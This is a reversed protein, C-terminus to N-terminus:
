MSHADGFSLELLSADGGVNEGIVGGLHFMDCWGEVQREVEATKVADFVFRIIQGLQSSDEGWVSEPQDVAEEFGVRKKRSRPKYIGVEVQDLVM